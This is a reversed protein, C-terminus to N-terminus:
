RLIGQLRSLVQRDNVFRKFASSNVYDRIFAKDTTMMDVLVRSKDPMVPFIPGEMPSTYVAILYGNRNHLFKYLLNEKQV